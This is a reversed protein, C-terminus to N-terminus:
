GTIEVSINQDTTPANAHNLTAHGSGQNTVHITPIAATASATKAMFSLHSFATLRSDILPTSAANANLTADLVNNSKGSLLNNIAASIQQATATTTLTATYAPRQNTSSM